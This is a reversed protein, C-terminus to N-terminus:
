DMPTDMGSCSFWKDSISIINETEHMWDDLYIFSDRGYIGDDAPLEERKSSLKGDM